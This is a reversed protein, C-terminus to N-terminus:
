IIYWQWTIEIIVKYKYTTLQFWQGSSFKGAWLSRWTTEKWTEITPLVSFFRITIVDFQELDSQSWKMEESSSTMLLLNTRLKMLITGKFDDSTSRLSKDTRFSTLNFGKLKCWFCYPFCRSLAKLLAHYWISENPWEDSSSYMLNYHPAKEPSRAWLPVM